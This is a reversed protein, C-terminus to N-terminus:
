RSREAERQLRRVYRSLDDLQRAISELATAYDSRDTSSCETRVADDARHRSEAPDPGAIAAVVEEVTAGLARALPQVNAIGPAYEGAEWAKVARASRLGIAEALQQQTLGSRERLRVLM